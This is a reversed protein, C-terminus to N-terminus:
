KQQDQAAHRLWRRSEDALSSASVGWKQFSYTLGDRSIHQAAPRGPFLFGDLKGVLADRRSAYRIVPGLLREELDVLQEDIRIVARMESVIRLRSREYRIVHELALGFLGILTGALAARLDAFAEGIELQELCIRLGRDSLARRGSARRQQPPKAPSVVDVGKLKLFGLFAHLAARQGPRSSLYMGVSAQSPMSDPNQSILGWAARLSLRQTTLNAKRGKAPRESLFTSFERLYAGGATTDGQFLLKAIRRQESAQTRADRDPVPFLSSLFSVVPEARRLEEASFVLAIQESNLDDRCSFRREISRFAAIYQGLKLAISMAKRKDLEHEIFDDFLERVWISSLQERQLLQRNALTSSWYRKQDEAAEPKRDVEVCRACLPKGTVTRTVV